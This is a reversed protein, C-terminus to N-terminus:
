ADAVACSNSCYLARHDPSFPADCAGNMCRRGDPHNQPVLWGKGDCVVCGYGGCGDCQVADLPYSNDRPIDM